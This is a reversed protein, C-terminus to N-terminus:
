TAGDKVAAEKFRLSEDETNLEAELGMPLTINETGHGMDFGALIPIGRDQFMTKVIQCVDDDAGCDEFSGLIIGSLHTLMRDIRYPAEGRDELFLLRGDFRPEFPTGVLHVLTTLNGGMVIGSAKGPNLVVPKSPILVLPQLSSVANTLATTTSDSGQALSTVLPGHFAVMNCAQHVAVLLTTIDSFGVLVKPHRRIAAFDLLPLIKLVGFGGRACFVAQITDDDFLDMLLAARESDSGAHYGERRFIGEPIRVRFGLSELVGVGQEFAKRDFPSAPAAIGITDGPRLIPPKVVSSEMFFYYWLGDLYTFIERVHPNHM